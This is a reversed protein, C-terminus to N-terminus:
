NELTLRMALENSWVVFHEKTQFIELSHVHLEDFPEDHNTPVKLETLLMQFLLCCWNTPYVVHHVLLIAEVVVVMIEVVMLVVMEVVMLVVMEAVVVMMEVVVVMMEVVVFMTQDVVFMMQVVPVMVLVEIAKYEYCM